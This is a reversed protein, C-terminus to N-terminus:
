LITLTINFYKLTTLAINHSFSIFLIVILVFIPFSSVDTNIDPQYQQILLIEKILLDKVNYSSFRKIYDYCLWKDSKVM